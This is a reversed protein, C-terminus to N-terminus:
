HIIARKFGAVHFEEVEVGPVLTWYEPLTAALAEEVWSRNEFEGVANISMDVVPYKGYTFAISVFREPDEASQFEWLVVGPEYAFKIEGTIGAMTLIEDFGACRLVDTGGVVVGGSFGCDAAAKLMRDYM